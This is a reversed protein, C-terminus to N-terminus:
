APRSRERPRERIRGLALPNIAGIGMSHHGLAAISDVDAATAARASREPSVAGFKWSYSRLPMVSELMVFPIGPCRPASAHIHRTDIRRRELLHDARGPSDHVHQMRLVRRQREAAASATGTATVTAGTSASCARTALSALRGSTASLAAELSPRSGSASRLM